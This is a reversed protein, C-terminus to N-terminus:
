EAPPFVARHVVVPVGAADVAVTTAESSAPLVFGTAAASAAFPSLLGAAVSDTWSTVTYAGPGAPVLSLGPFLAADDLISVLADQKGSTPVVVVVGGNALFGGLAQTLAPGASSSAGVAEAATTTLLLVDAAGSSLTLPLDDASKRAIEISRGRSEVEFKTLAEIPVSGAHSAHRYTVVHVPDAPHVLVASGVIHLGWAGAPSASPELGVAIVHGAPLGVCAGEECIGSPCVTGCGGCHSPDIDVDVCSGFCASLTGCDLAGGGGGSALEGGTGAGGGAALEGAGEGGSGADAILVCKDRHQEYGPLCEGGILAADCGFFSLCAVFLGGRKM